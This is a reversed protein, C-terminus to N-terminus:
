PLSDMTKRWRRWNSEINTNLEGNTLTNTFIKIRVVLEKVSVNLSQPTAVESLQKIRNNKNLVNEQDGIKDGDFKKNQSQSKYKKCNLNQQM